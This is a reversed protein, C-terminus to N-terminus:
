NILENHKDGKSKNDIKMSTSLTNQRQVFCCSVMIGILGAM